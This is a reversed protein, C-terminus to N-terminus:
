NDVFRQALGEVKLIRLLEMHLKLRAKWPSDKIDALGVIGVGDISAFYGIWPKNFGVRNYYDAYVNLIAACEPNESFKKNLSVDLEIPLLTM